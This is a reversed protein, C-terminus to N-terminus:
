VTSETLEQENKKLHRQINDLEQQLAEKNDTEDENNLADQLITQAMELQGYEICSQADELPSLKVSQPATKEVTLLDQDPGFLGESLVSGATWRYEMQKKANSKIWKAFYATEHEGLIPRSAKLLRIRLAEGADKLVYFLDHLAGSLFAGDKHTMAFFIRHTHLNLNGPFRKISCAYFHWAADPDIKEKELNIAEPTLFILPLAPKENAQTISSM